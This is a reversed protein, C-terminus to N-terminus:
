GMALPALVFELDAVPVVRDDGGSLLVHDFPAAEEYWGGGDLRVLRDFAIGGRPFEVPQKSLADLVSHGPRPACMIAANPLVEPRYVRSSRANCDAGEGYVELFVPTEGTSAAGEVLMEWMAQAWDALFAERATQDLQRSITVVGPWAASLVDAFAAIVETVTKM